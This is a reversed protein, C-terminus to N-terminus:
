LFIRTAGGCRECVIIVPYIGTVCTKIERGHRRVTVEDGERVCIVNNCVKEDKKHQCRIVQGCKTAM